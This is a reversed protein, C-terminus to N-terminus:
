AITASTWTNVLLVGGGDNEDVGDPQVNTLKRENVSSSM